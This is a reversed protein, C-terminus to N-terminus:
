KPKPKANIKALAEEVAKGLGMDQDKLLKAAKQVEKLTPLAAKAPPGIQGLGVIAQVRIPM